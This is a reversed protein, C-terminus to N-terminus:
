ERKKQKEILFKGLNRYAKKLHKDGKMTELVQSAFEEVCQKEDRPLKSYFRMSTFAMNILANPNLNVAERDEQNLAMQAAKRILKRVLKKNPLARLIKRYETIFTTEPYNEIVRDINVEGFVFVYLVGESTLKYGQYSVGKESKVNKGKEVCGKIILNNIAMSVNKYDKKLRRKIPQKLSNPHLALDNIIEKELKGLYIPHQMIMDSYPTKM